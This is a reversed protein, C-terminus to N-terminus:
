GDVVFFIMTWAGDDSVIAVGAMVLKVNIVAM